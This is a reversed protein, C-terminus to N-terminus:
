EFLEDAVKKRYEDEFNQVIKEVTFSQRREGNESILVIGDIDSEEVEQDEVFEAFEEGAEIKGVDFEVSDICNEVFTECQGDSLDQIRNRFDDFVKELASQKARLEKQRAEMRANSLKQRRLSEKEEELDEEMDEEIKRAEEEAEEIIEQKEQKAESIIRDAEDEAENLVESKVEELGM